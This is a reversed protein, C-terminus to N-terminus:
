LQAPLYRGGTRCRIFAEPAQKGVHATLMLSLGLQAGCLTVCSIEKAGAAVVNNFEPSVDHPKSSYGDRQNEILVDVMLGDLVRLSKM